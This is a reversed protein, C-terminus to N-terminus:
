VQRQAKCLVVASALFNPLVVLVLLYTLGGFISPLGYFMIAIHLILLSAQQYLIYLIGVLGRHGLSLSSCVLSSTALSLM